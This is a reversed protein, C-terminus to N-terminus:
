VGAAAPQARVSAFGCLWDKSGPQPYLMTNRVVPAAWIQSADVGALGIVQAVDSTSLARAAQFARKDVGPLPEVNQRDWQINVPDGKVGGVLAFPCSRSAGAALAKEKQGGCWMDTTGFQPDLSGPQASPQSLRTGVDIGTTVSPLAVKGTNTVILTGKLLATKADYTLGVIKAQLGPVGNPTAAGASGNPCARTCCGGPCALTGTRCDGPPYAGPGIARAPAVAVALLAVVMGLLLPLSRTTTTRSGM